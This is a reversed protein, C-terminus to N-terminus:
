LKPVKMQRSNNHMENNESQKTKLIVHQDEFCDADFNM